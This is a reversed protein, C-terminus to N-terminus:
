LRVGLFPVLMEQHTLGGHRGLLFNEKQDWWLYADDQAVALVDGLRDRLSPHPRGPGFLGARLARSQPILTFQQPWTARTYDHVADWRGPRLYLYALRNEGTPHIHLCEALRPHHRLDNRPKFPTAIQGHDAMLILLTGQRAAPSLQSLFFREFTASFTAFEAQVREDDPGHRHSLGDVSSFYVYAYLRENIKAELFQRLGVWLDATTGFSQIEVDRLFMESLGSRAITYHQFAYPKVGHRALHPGLTPVRLFHEPKFGARKLSGVDGRFTMPAHLIMNAVVSYEKLWVEYGVIGHAAASCGTWITTLAASTTSPVISTLPAFVGDKVLSRWVSTGGFAGVQSEDQEMWRRLRDFALADVLILVIREIGEGLPSLIEPSLPAEGFEPVELLQCISAPINLISQDDYKPFIM